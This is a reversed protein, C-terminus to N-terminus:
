IFPIFSSLFPSLSLSLPLSLSPSCNLLCRGTALIKSVTKITLVTTGGVEVEGSVGELFSTFVCCSRSPLSSNHDPGGQALWRKKWVQTGEGGIGTRSNKLAQECRIIQNILWLRETARGIPVSCAALTPALTLSLFKGLVKALWSIALSSDVWHQGPGGPPGCREWGFTPSFPFEQTNAYAEGM